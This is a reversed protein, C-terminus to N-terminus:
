DSNRFFLFQKKIGFVQTTRDNLIIKGDTSQVYNPKLILQLYQDNRIRLRSRLIGDIKYEGISSFNIQCHNSNMKNKNASTTQVSEHKSCNEKPM